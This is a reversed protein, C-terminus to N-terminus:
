GDPEAVPARAALWREFTVEGRRDPDPDILGGASLGRGAAGLLPVPVLAARTGTARKWEAALEAVPRIEPGAVSLAERPGAEVLDAAAAAVESPDVPQLPAHIRPLIRARALAAFGAALLQHFQTARLISFPTGAARVVAEQELKVRYYATPVREIGVISLCVHHEVAAEREATLLRHGGDVLLARAARKAPGANTADVVAACGELAEALGSGSLLDAPHDASGRSLARVEHGRRALEAAIPKGATGTAGAVAVRM